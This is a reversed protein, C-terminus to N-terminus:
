LRKQKETIYMSKLHEPFDEKPMYGKNCWNKVKKIEGDLREKDKGEHLLAYNSEMIPIYIDRIMMEASPNLAYVAYPNYIVDAKSETRYMEFVRVYIHSAGWILFIIIIFVLPVGIWARPIGYIETPFRFEIYPYITFALNVALLVLSGVAAMRKM